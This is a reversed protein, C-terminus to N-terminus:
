ARRTEKHTPAEIAPIPEPLANLATRLREQIEPDQLDLDFETLVALIAQRMTARFAGYGSIKLAEFKDNQWADRLGQLRKREENQMKVIINERAEYTRNTGAFETAGIHEEKSIGWWISKEEEIEDIKRDFWEIRAGSRRIEWLLLSFPDLSPHDEPWLETFGGVKVAAPDVPTAVARAVEAAVEAEYRDNRAKNIVQDSAGGHWKCFNTDNVQTGGCQRGVRDLDRSKQTNKYVHECRAM